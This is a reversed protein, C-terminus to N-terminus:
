WTYNLGAYFSRGMGPVTTGWAVGSGSMTQGQGLYAGALPYSYFKDLANEVGFDIRVSDLQYSSRLHLLGYGATEIENREANIKDKKSVLEWEVTNNWSNLKQQLAFTAHLPMINYLNDGTDRNKGRVYNINASAVFAGYASQEILTKYGSIDLGYLRASQNEYRLYVFSDTATLNATTCGPMMMTGSTGCRSADIYDEVYSLYPTVALHWNQQKADHWNATASITRAVEPELDLNGVYGNGDGALNVMRMVMGQTSWAYREYLNPSRTKQAVGFEYTENESPTFRALLTIDFNDDTKKRDANNFADDDMGAIMANYGQVEGTDMRVNEYRIGALTMWQSNWNAEWETFVAYRDREGNNINWFTNPWMGRGSPEWYDDLEYQQIDTGVRLMDRQSLLFETQLSFGTNYGETDMPMGQADPNGAMPGMTAAPYIYQKDEGFQMKHRTHEHYINTEINGWDFGGKYILNIQSSKNETMDMRQNPWGQYPINQYGLKLQLLHNENHLAIDLAHNNAQYSSSGVEDGDLYGRDSAAAGAAKFSDAADYNNSKETSGSYTISLKDSAITASLNGGAADGNTRYYAGIEGTMLTEDASKAFQPDKSKALITGGISDGGSSVPSIGAYVELSEVRTPSIYSLPSNMHNACASILDMGDVKVRLRDDALGHIAPLGSVGGAGYVSVGPVGKLLQASDSTSSQLADIDEASLLGQVNFLNNKQGSVTVKDLEVSDHSHEAYVYSPVATALMLCLNLTRIKAM